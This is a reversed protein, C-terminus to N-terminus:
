ARCLRWTMNGANLGAQEIWQANVRRKAHKGLWKGIRRSNFASGGGSINLLDARLQACEYVEARKIIQAVTVREDGIKEAWQILVADLEAKEPDDEQIAAMTLLPDACGLWILPDRVAASWAEFSGLPQAQRPAGAARHALLVTLAAAVLSGREAEAREVPEFAFSRLEPREVRPDLNCLITRRTLDGLIVLGNGNVTLFTGSPVDVMRSGGLPRVTAVAQSLVMNLFVGDVPATANDLTAVQAGQLLLGTLRKEMEIEDGTHAVASAPRGTAIVSAIDSLKTKGSGRVPASFGHLPATPLTARVCATLFGSIAVSRDEGAVFPFGAVLEGLLALAAVAEDRTPRPPIPPFRTSGPEYFLGTARDYGPVDLVSGDPRLTPATVVGVLPPLRLRGSRQMLTRVLPMPPNVVVEEDARADFKMCCAASSVAEAVAWEGMPVVRLAKTEVESAVTIPVQGVGVIADGRQYVGGRAALAAEMEDVNEAIAGARISIMPRLDNTGRREPKKREKPKRAKPAANKGANDNVATAADSDFWKVLDFRESPKVWGPVAQKAHWFITGAGIKDPPSGFYHHWREEADGFKYKWCKDSWEEWANFGTHWDGNTAAWAALGMENWKDWPLGDNPIVALAAAIDDSDAVQDKNPTRDFARTPSRRFSMDPIARLRALVDGLHLDVDNEEVIWALRPTAKKHLSGAARLPHVISVASADAAVLDCVFRRATRLDQHEEDTRTPVALRWFCHLKPEENGTEPDTWRGGSEVVMTPRGLVARLVALSARPREDCEVVIAVGEKLDIVRARHPNSFTCGPPALAPAVVELGAAVRAMTEIRDGRDAAGVQVAEERLLRNDSGGFIRLSLYGEPDANKFLIAFYRDLQARDPQLEGNPLPAASM